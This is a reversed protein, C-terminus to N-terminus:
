VSTSKWIWHIEKSIGIRGRSSISLVVIVLLATKKWSSETTFADSARKSFVGAPGYSPLKAKAREELELGDDPM